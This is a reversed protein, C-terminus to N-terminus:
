AEMMEKPDFARVITRGKIRTVCLNRDVLPAIDGIKETPASVIAQLELSRLLKISEQIRQHDMKSFAEDFIILRLTNNDGRRQKVRYLRVFSALVSIYFPTQTEGGSKKGITKSLRSERGEEDTAILEFMLYTRYDTYKEINKELEAREDANISGEGVDTILKFLEDIADRHKSQFEASFLNFGELLMSDTIMDYFKRYSPNPRLEFRYKDRGFSMDKLAADLEEIQERVVDMNQKLKSIFDEQFENQSKERADRIKEEYQHLHTDKLQSLEGAFPRNDTLNIDYSMKYDRNYDARLAILAEWKKKRQSGTRAIQNTFANLINDPTKRSELEKLFRAEGSKLIWENDYNQGIVLEIRKMDDDLSKLKNVLIDSNERELGGKKGNLGGIESSLRSRRSDADHIRKDITSIYALDLSGLEDIAKQHLAKIEKLPRIEFVSSEVYEIDSDTLPEVAKLKELLASDKRLSELKVTLSEKEKEKITIQKEISSKGIYPIQWREPNLQRAVFNQYLMCSQTISTRHHRLDEVTGCKMVRGLLFNAFARAYPSDTIIEEALSGKDAEPNMRMLKEIDVLGIDYFGKKFKLEDYIKLADVFYRPEAILYFKQTHLYGEIANQWERDRIEMLECFISVEVKAGYKEQLRREIEGKLGTLKPDYPKIGKRLSEIDESLKRINENVSSLAGKNNFYAEGLVDRFIGMNHKLSVLRDPAINVLSERKVNLLADTGERIDDAAAGPLAGEPLVHSDELLEMSSRWLRGWNKLKREMESMINEIRQLKENLNRKEEKLRESKKYIDSDYKERLLRDKEEELGKLEMEKHAIQTGLGEIERENDERKRNLDDISDITKQKGARDMLYSQELYRQDEESYDDYKKGIDELCAIRARVMDAEHELRKYYRINDQMDAIDVRNPV